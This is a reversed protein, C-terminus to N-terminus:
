AKTRGLGCLVYAAMIDEDRLAMTTKLSQVTGLDGVGYGFSGEPTVAEHAEEETETETEEGNQTLEDLDLDVDEDVDVVRVNESTGAAVRAAACAWELTKRGRPRGFEVYTTERVSEPSGPPSSPMNEWLPANPNHIQHRIPTHPARLESRAAIRDLSPLTTRPLTTQTGTQAPLTPPPYVNNHSGMPQTRNNINSRNTANHLAVKRESQRKNQFWITVHKTERHFM